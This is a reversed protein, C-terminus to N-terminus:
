FFNFMYCRYIEKTFNLKLIKVADATSLNLTYTTINLQTESWGGVGRVGTVTFISIFPSSKDFLYKKPQQDVLLCVFNEAVFNKEEERKIVLGGAAADVFTM